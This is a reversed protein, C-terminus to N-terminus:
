IQVEGTDYFHARDRGAQRSAPLSVAAGSAPPLSSLYQNDRDGRRQAPCLSHHENHGRAAGCAFCALLLSSHDVMYKNRRQMCGPSYKDQVLHRSDCRSLLERYRLRQEENWEEAQTSCPIAAELSVDPHIERLELVAEAFYMDCGIAMYSSHLASLTAYVSLSIRCYLPRSYRQTCACVDCADQVGSAAGDRHVSM